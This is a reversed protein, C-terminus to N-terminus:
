KTLITISQPEFTIDGNKLARRFANYSLTGNNNKYVKWLISIGKQALSMKAKAEDSPFIGKRSASIKAKTEDTHSKGMHAAAMKSKHEYSLKKGTHAIRMKEKSEHSHTHGCFPNDVGFKRVGYMPNNVGTNHYQMHESMTMFVIYKGYEFTGDLNFGWLEYHEDNYKRCEETDDRHHVVCRETISNALKWENLLKHTYSHYENRHNTSYYEINNM